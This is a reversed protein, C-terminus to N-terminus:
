HSLLSEDELIKSGDSSSGYKVKEQIEEEEGVTADLIGPVPAQCVVRKGMYDVVCTLLTSLGKVDHRNIIKVGALDKSAVYRSAEEAGTNEFGDVTSAGTSYFVGNKLYIYKDEEETPNMPAIDGKIIHMATETASKTFDFLTKQILKDRVIREQFTSSPLEKISQFENNWEKIFDSGDVGNNILPLQSRSVDPTNKM